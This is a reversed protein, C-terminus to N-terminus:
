PVSKRVRLLLELLGHEAATRELYTEDLRGRQQRLVSTVDRLQRESVEGGRRYWDLKRLVILEASSVHIRPDGPELQASIRRAMQEKDLGTKSSVFLDLKQATAKHIVNFSRRHRLAERMCVEDAYFDPSLAAILPRVQEPSLEVLLDIDHTTRPEGHVGSALSGGVVYRIDAADLVALFRLLVDKGRIM